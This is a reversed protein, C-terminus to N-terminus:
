APFETRRALARPTRQLWEERSNQQRHRFSYNEIHALM